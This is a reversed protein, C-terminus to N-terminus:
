IKARIKIDQDGDSNLNLSLYKFNTVRKFSKGEVQPASTKRIDKCKIERCQNNVKEESPNQEM